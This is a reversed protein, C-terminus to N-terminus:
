KNDKLIYVNWSQLVFMMYMYISFVDCLWTWLIIHFNTLSTVIKLIVGLLRRTNPSKNVYFHLLLVLNLNEMGSFGYFSVKFLTRHCIHFFNSKLISGPPWRPNICIICTAWLQGEPLWGLDTKYDRYMRFWYYFNMPFCM